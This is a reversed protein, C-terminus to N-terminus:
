TTVVKTWLFFAIKKTFGEFFILNFSKHIYEFEPTQKSAKSCNAFWNGIKIANLLIISCKKTKLYFYSM